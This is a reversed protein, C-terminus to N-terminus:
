VPAAIVILALRVTPNLGAGTKFFPSYNKRYRDSAVASFRTAKKKGSKIVVVATCLIILYGLPQYLNLM